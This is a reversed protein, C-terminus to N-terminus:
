VSIKEAVIYARPEGVTFPKRGPISYIEKLQFGAEKLLVDM